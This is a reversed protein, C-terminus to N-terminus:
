DLTRYVCVQTDVYRETYTIYISRTVVIHLRNKMDMVLPIHFTKMCHKAEGAVLWLLLYWLFVFNCEMRHEMGDKM